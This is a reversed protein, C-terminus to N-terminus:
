TRSRGIAWNGEQFSTGLLMRALLSHSHTVIGKSLASVIDYIILDKLEKPEIKYEQNTINFM